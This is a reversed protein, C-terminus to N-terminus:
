EAVLGGETTSALSTSAKTSVEGVGLPKLSKWKFTQHKLSKMSYASHVLKTVSQHIIFMSEEM